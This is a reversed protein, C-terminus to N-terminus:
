TGENNVLTPDRTGQTEEKVPAEVVVDPPLVGKLFTVAADEDTCLEMFLEEFARTQTFEKRIEESKIFRKGDESKKGYALLIIEKFKKVLERNDKSEVIHELLRGFGQEYEVELEILEPKSINFYFVDSTEAGDFDEYKIERRLM